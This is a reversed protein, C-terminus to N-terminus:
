QGQMLAATADVIAQYEPIDEVGVIKTPHVYLKDYGTNGDKLFNVIMKVCVYGSFYQGQDIIGDIRGAKLEDLNSKLPDMTLITVKDLIGQEECVKATIIGYQAGVAFFGNIDPDRQIVSTVKQTVTAPDLTVVENFVEIDPSIEKMKNNFTDFILKEQDSTGASEVLVKGQGGMKDSLWVAAETAYGIQDPGAYGIAVTNEIPLTHLVASPIGADKAKIMPEEFADPVYPMLILGNYKAAIAQELISVNEDVAATESADKTIEVNGIEEAAKLCGAHISFSFESLKDGPELFIKTVEGAATEAATTEAVTEETATKCSSLSFIGIMSVTILIVMLWLSLKKLKIGKM